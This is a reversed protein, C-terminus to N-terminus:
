RPRAKMELALCFPGRRLRLAMRSIEHKPADLSNQEQDIAHGGNLFRMVEPDRELDLFDARDGPCCPSLTLKVTQLVAVESGGNM